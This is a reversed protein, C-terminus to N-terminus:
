RKEKRARGWHQGPCGSAVLTLRVGIRCAHGGAPVTGYLQPIAEPAPTSGVNGPDSDPKRGNFSGSIPCIRLPCRGSGERAMRLGNLEPCRDGYAVHSEFECMVPNSGAQEEMPM